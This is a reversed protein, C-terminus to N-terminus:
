EMKRLRAAIERLHSVNGVLSATVTNLHEQEKELVIRGLPQISDRIRQEEKAINDASKEMSEALGHLINKQTADDSM